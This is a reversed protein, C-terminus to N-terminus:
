SASRTGPAASARQRGRQLTFSLRRRTGDPRFINGDSKDEQADYLRRAVRLLRENEARKAAQREAARAKEERYLRIDPDREYWSPKAPPAAVPARYARRYTREYEESCSTCRTNARVATNPKGCEACSYRRCKMPLPAAESSSSLVGKGTRRSACM